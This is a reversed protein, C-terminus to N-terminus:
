GAQDSVTWVCREAGQGQCSDHRVTGTHGWLTEVYVAAASTLFECASASGGAEALLCSGVSLAPPDVDGDVRAGPNLARAARRMCRLAARRRLVAPYRRRLMRVLRSGGGLHDAALRRGAAGFVARADPRRGILRLLDLFEQARVSGGTDRLQAYRHMQNGVVDSLGLRRPLSQHFAEDELTEEPTDVTRLSQLLALAIAPHVNGDTRKWPRM